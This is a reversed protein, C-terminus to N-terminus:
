AEDGKKEPDDPHRESRLMYKLINQQYETLIQLLEIDTLDAELQLDNITKKIKAGSLNVTQFRPHMRLGSM